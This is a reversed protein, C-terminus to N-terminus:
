RAESTVSYQERKAGNRVVNVIVNVDRPQVPARASTVRPAPEAPAVPPPALIESKGLDGVTIRRVDEELGEGAQRLMLSLRGVGQALIIKQAQPSSLELTVARAVTPKDQQDGIVQDVALVKVNQLLIDAFGQDKIAGTEDRTLVVDVRDGPLVFGAVGRVEDVRVAVARMGQEIMTSLTARQGPGTIKTTLIPENRQIPALVLRKGDKLLEEKSLFAGDIASDNPWAIEAVNDATLQAGFALPQTAVVVVKGAPTPAMARGNLYTRATMAALGGLALALLLLALSGFRM